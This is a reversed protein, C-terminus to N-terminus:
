GPLGKARRVGAALEGGVSIDTCLEILLLGMVLLGLAWAVGPAGGLAVVSAVVLLAAGLREGNRYGAPDGPSLHPREEDPVMLMAGVSVGLSALFLAAAVGPLVWYASPYHLSAVWGGFLSAIVVVQELRVTTRDVLATAVPARATAPASPTEMVPEQEVARGVVEVSPTAAGDESELGLEPTEPAPTAEVEGRGWAWQPRDAATQPASPQEPPNQVSM